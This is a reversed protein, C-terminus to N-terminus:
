GHAHRTSGIQVLALGGLILAFGALKAAGAPQRAMGLLGWQDVAAATALQAVLIFTIFNGAGFRPIVVTASLAYFGILLGPLWGAAPVTRLQALTPPGAFALTLAAGALCAVAFMVATAALPSGVSRATGANLIGILPIGIGALITWGALLVSVKTM